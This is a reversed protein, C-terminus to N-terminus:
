WHWLRLDVVTSQVALAAAYDPHVDLDRVSWGPAGATDVSELPISLGEGTGKVFAEKRTWARFFARPRDAESVRLFEALERPSLVQRALDTVPATPRIEEIDVGLRAGVAFALLAYDSSHSVNFTLRDRNQHDPLGPKGFPNATITVGAAPANLYRGLLTRLIGRTITYARRDKEFVFRSAQAREDDCLVIRWREASSAEASLRVACVDVEHQIPLSTM